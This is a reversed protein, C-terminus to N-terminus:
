TLNIEPRVLSTVILATDINAVPPRDLYNRRLLVEEIVKKSTDFMVKDGVVPKLKINRFKGRSKCDCTIGECKVTFTDSNVKTITGEILM